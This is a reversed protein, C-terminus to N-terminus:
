SNDELAGSWIHLLNCSYKENLEIARRLDIPDALQDEQDGVRGMSWSSPVLRKRRRKSRLGCDRMKEEVEEIARSGDGQETAEDEEAVEGDPMPEDVGDAASPPWHDLQALFSGIVDHANQLSSLALLASSTDVAAASFAPSLRKVALTADKLAAVVDGLLINTDAAPQAAVASPFSSSTQAQSDHLEPAVFLLGLEM